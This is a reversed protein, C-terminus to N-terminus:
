GNTRVFDSRWDSFRADLEKAMENIDPQFVWIVSPNAAQKLQDTPTVRGKVEYFVGNVIFDPIYGKQKGDTDIYHLKSTYNREVVYGRIKTFYSMLTYEAFSDFRDGNAIGKKIHSRKMPSNILPELSPLECCDETFQEWEEVTEFPRLIHTKRWFDFTM